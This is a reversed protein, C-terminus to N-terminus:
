IMVCVSFLANPFEDDIDIYIDEEIMLIKLLIIEIGLSYWSPIINSNNDIWSM